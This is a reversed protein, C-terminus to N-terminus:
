SCDLAKGEVNGSQSYDFAEFGMAMTLAQHRDKALPKTLVDAIMDETPCYKLCIERNELRERIFHLQVDIHKTRYHHIPNNALTICGQKDCMISTPGEQVYGVDVLIQGLWVAEKTCHSTAM